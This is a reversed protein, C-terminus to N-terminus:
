LRDAGNKYGCTSGPEANCGPQSSGWDQLMSQQEKREEGKWLRGM